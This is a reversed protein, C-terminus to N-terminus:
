QIKVNLTVTINKGSTNQVEITYDGSKPLVVVFNNVGFRAEADDLLRISAQDTDVTVTLTQGARAGVIYRRGEDEPITVKRTAASAGKAFTLRETPYLDRTTEKGIKTLKDGVLRYTTTVIAEPCCSAGNKGPDNRDVILLGKEVRTSRLGGYARDGGGIRAVMVPKVGKMTFVYGESFNGTGGTNCSSLVVAEDRKDGNLDGYAFNYVNFYFRDVYGDQQKEESFEGDKVTIKSPTKGVCFASYTFNKFDVKHIDGQGVAATVTVLLCWIAVIFTKM